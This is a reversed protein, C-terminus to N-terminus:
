DQPSKVKLKQNAKAVLSDYSAQDAKFAKAKDGIRIINVSKIMDNKEIANVVNMGIEANDVVKGFVAHKGDLWPTAKHTIFFQSGNTNPGANAMSLIGGSDHKLTSDFEDPFRYGPNGMGTGEPCGGQIMFDKIVRHFLLGDYFRKQDKMYDHNITGEALGVFNTVTMPVKEFYLQCVITGKSTIFEAYLGDPLNYKNPATSEALLMTVMSLFVTVILILGFLKTKM